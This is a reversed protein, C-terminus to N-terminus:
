IHILSLINNVHTVVTENDSKRIIKEVAGTAENLHYVAENSQLQAAQMQATGSFVLTVICLLGHKKM